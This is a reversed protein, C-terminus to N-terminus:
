QMQIEKLCIDRAEKESVKQCVERMMHPNEKGDPTIRAIGQFCALRNRKEQVEECLSIIVNSDQSVYSFWRPAQDLYCVTQYKSVLLVCPEHIADKSITQGTREGDMLQSTISTNYEMFVGGQCADGHAELTECSALARELGSISYGYSVLLGHGIGHSCSNQGEESLSACLQWPDGALRPIAQAMFGHYCGWKFDDTCYQLGAAHEQKYLTEGVVHALDHAFAPNSHEYIDVFQTYAIEPSTTKFLHRVYAQETAFVDSVRHQASVSVVGIICCLGL